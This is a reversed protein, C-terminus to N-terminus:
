YMDGCCEKCKSENKRGVFEDFCKCCKNYKRNVDWGWENICDICFNRWSGRLYSKDLLKKGSWSDVRFILKNKNCMYCKGYFVNDKNYGECIDHRKMHCIMCLSVCDLIEATSYLTDYSEHHVCEANEGCDNCLYKAEKLVQIRLNKWRDTKLYKHYEEKRKKHYKSFYYKTKNILLEWNEVYEDYFYGMENRARNMCSEWINNM